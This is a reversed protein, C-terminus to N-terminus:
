AKILSDKEPGPYVLVIEEVGIQAALQLNEESFPTLIMSLRM